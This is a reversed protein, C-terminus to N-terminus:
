MEELVDKLHGVDEVPLWAVLPGPQDVLLGYRVREVGGESYVHRVLYGSWRRPAVAEVDHEHDQHEVDPEPAATSSTTSAPAPEQKLAQKPAM